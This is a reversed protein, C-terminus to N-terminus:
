VGPFHYYIPNNMISQLLIEGRISDTGPLRVKLFFGFVVIYLLLTIVPNIISWYMGLLSGVYRQAFDRKVFNILLEYYQFLLTVPSEKQIM